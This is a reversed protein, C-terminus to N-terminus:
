FILKDVFPLLIFKIITQGVSQSTFINPFSISPINEFINTKRISKYLCNSVFKHKAQNGLLVM